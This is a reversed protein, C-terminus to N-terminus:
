CEPYNVVKTIRDSEDGRWITLTVRQGPRIPPEIAPNRGTSTPRRPVEWQWRTPEGESRDHLRVATAPCSTVNVTEAEVEYSFDAALRPRPSPADSGGTCAGLACGAGVVFAAFRQHVLGM